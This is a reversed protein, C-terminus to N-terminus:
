LALGVGLRLGVWAGDISAERRGSVLGGVPFVSYGVEAGAAVVLGRRAIIALGLTAFPGGALWLVRSARVDPEDAVGRLASLGIRFGAGGDLIVRRITGRGLLSAGMTLQDILVTGLTTSESAHHTLLDVRWGLHRLFGQQVQLGAGWQAYPEATPMLQVSAMATLELDHGRLHDSPRPPPSSAPKPAQAARVLEALALAITRARVDADDPGLMVERTTAGPERLTLVARDGDCTVAVSAPEAGTLELAVHRRVAPELEDCGSFRLAPEGALALRAVLLTISGLAARM